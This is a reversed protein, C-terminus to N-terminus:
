DVDLDLEKSSFTRTENRLLKGLTVSSDRYYTWKGDQSYDFRKPGSLPSSLWLQKSPPQKNLVYTGVSPVQVTLVGQSLDADITPNHEILDEYSILIRDLADDSLEHYRQTSILRRFAQIAPVRRPLYRFM